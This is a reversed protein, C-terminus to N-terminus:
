QFFGRDDIDSLQHALCVSQYTNSSECPGAYRISTGADGHWSGRNCSPGICFLQAPDHVSPLPYSQLGNQVEDQLYISGYAPFELSELEKEMDVIQDIVQYRELPSMTEWREALPMGSVKEM